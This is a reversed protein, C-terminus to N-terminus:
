KPEIELVFLNQVSDISDNWGWPTMTNSPKNWIECYDEGGFANDPQYSGWYRYFGTEGNEWVWDIERNEDSLGIWYSYSQKLTRLKKIVANNEKWSTLTVLHGGHTECIARAEHWTATKRSVYYLHGEYEMLFDFAEELVAVHKDSADELEAEVIVIEEKGNSDATNEDQGISNSNDNQEPAPDIVPPPCFRRNEGSCRRKRATGKRRSFL